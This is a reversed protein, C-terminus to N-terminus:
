YCHYCYIVLFLLIIIFIVIFSIFITVAYNRKFCQVVSTQKNYCKFTHINYWILRYITCHTTYHCKLCIIFVIKCNCFFRQDFPWFVAKLLSGVLCKGYRPKFTGRIKVNFKSGFILMKIDIMNALVFVIGSVVWWVSTLFISETKNFHVSIVYTLNLIGTPRFISGKCVMFLLNCM